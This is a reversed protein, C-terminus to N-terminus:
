MNVCDVSELLFDTIYYITAYLAAEKADIDEDMNLIEQMESLIFYANTFRYRIKAVLDLAIKDMDDIDSVQLQDIYDSGLKKTEQLFAPGSQALFTKEDENEVEKDLSSEFTSRLIQKFISLRNANLSLLYLSRTHNWKDLYTSAGAILQEVTIDSGSTSDAIFGFIVDISLGAEALKAFSEEYINVQLPKENFYSFAFETTATFVKGNRIDKQYLELAVALKTGFYDRNAASRTRLTATTYGLDLDLRETLNRYFMYGVLSYNLLEDTSLYFEKVAETLYNKARAEGIVGIWDQILADQESDGTLLYKAVSFDQERVANLNMVEIQFNKTNNQYGLVESGVVPSTFVDHHKIYSVNFFEEPDKHKYNELTSFLTEKLLSCEKNVVSRAFSIYGSVLQALDEVYNDMFTDHSSQQYSKENRHTVYLGTSAALLSHERSDEPMYETMLMNNSIAKGLESILTNGKPVLKIGQDTVISALNMGLMVSSNSLM